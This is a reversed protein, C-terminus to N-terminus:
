QCTRTDQIDTQAQGLDRAVQCKSLINSLTKKQKEQQKMKSRDSHATLQM